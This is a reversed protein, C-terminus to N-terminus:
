RQSPMKSVNKAQAGRRVSAAEFPKRQYLISNEAESFKRRLLLRTMLAAVIQHHHSFPFLDTSVYDGM